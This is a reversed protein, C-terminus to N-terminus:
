KRSGRRKIRTTQGQFDTDSGYEDRIPQRRIALDVDERNVYHHFAIRYGYDNFPDLGRSRNIREALEQIFDPYSRNKSWERWDNIRDPRSKGAGEERFQVEPRQSRRYDRILRLRRQVEVSRDETRIRSLRRETRVNEADIRETSNDRLRRTEEPSYGLAKLEAYKRRRAIARKSQSLPRPM